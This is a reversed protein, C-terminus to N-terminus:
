FTVIAAFVVLQQDRSPTAHDTFVAADSRDRRGELKVVLDPHPRLAVTLTAEDWTQALGTITGSADQMREARASITWRETAEWRGWLAFASWRDDAGSPREQRGAYSEGAFAWGPAPRVLAVLDLLRRYDSGNGPIEAGYWTNVALSVTETDWALRTGLSKSRNVDGITQWGNGVHLEARWGKGLGVSTRIGANYSPTFSGAISQTYNWNDRPLPSEFGIHGPYLGAELVIERGRDIAYSLSAQYLNDWIQPGAAEGQPEGGHLLEMETGAGAVVRFGVPEPARSIELAVLNVAFENARKASSGVGPYFSTEDTGAAHNWAFYLDVFGGILCAPTGHERPAQRTTDKAADVFPADQAQAAVADVALLLAPLVHCLIRLPIRRPSIKLPRGATM